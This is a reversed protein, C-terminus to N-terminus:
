TSFPISTSNSSVKNCDGCYAHKDEYHNRLDQDDDLHLRCRQCYAHHPSQVFHQTLYPYSAFQIGCEFCYSHEDDEHSFLDDKCEFWQMCGSFTCQVEEYPWPM